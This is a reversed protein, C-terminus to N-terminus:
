IQNMITDKEHFNSVIDVKEVRKLLSKLSEEYQTIQKLIKNENGLIKDRLDDLAKYFVM